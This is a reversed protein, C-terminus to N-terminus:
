PPQVVVALHGALGYSRRDTSASPSPPGRHARALSAGRAKTMDPGEGYVTRAEETRAMPGSWQHGAPQEVVTAFIWAVAASM